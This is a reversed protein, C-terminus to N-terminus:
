IFRSSFTTISYNTYEPSDTLIKKPIKEKSRESPYRYFRRIKSIKKFLRLIINM